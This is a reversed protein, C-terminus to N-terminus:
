AKYSMNDILENEGTIHNRARRKLRKEAEEGLYGRTKSRCNPYLPPFNVGIKKDKYAIVKNDYEQCKESTRNDLTAVLVYKDIGMEEYAM